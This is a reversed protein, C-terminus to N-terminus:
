ESLTIRGKGEKKHKKYEKKRDKDKKKKKEVHLTERNTRTVPLPQLTKATLVQRQWDTTKLIADFRESLSVDTFIFKICNFAHIFLIILM